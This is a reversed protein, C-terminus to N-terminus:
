QSLIKTKGNLYNIILLNNLISISDINKNKLNYEYIIKGTFINTEIIKGSSFFLLLNNNNNNAVNILQDNKSLYDKLNIKWFIKSNYINFTKLIKQDNLTILTNNYFKYSSVNNIRFKNILLNNESVDFSTLFMNNDFISIINKFNHLINNHHLSYDNSSFNTFPSDIKEGIITNIQGFEGNPLTFYLIHNRSTLSGGHISISNTNKYLFVWNKSGNTPNISMIKDSLLIILNNNHFKIPTKIIDNTSIDWQKLGLLNYCIIYGDSYTVFFFNDSMAMSTPFSFENNKYYELNISEIKKGNIINFIELKSDNTLSYVKNDFIFSTLPSTGLNKNFSNKFELLNNFQKKNDLSINSVLTYSDINKYPHKKEESLIVSNNEIINLDNNEIINKDKIKNLPNCSFIILLVLLILINNIIKLIM